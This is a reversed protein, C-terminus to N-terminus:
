ELPHEWSMIVGDRDCRTGNPAIGAVRGRAITRPPLTPFPPIRCVEAADDIEMAGATTDDDAAEDTRARKPHCANDERDPALRRKGGGTATTAPEEGFQEEEDAMAILLGRFPLLRIHV